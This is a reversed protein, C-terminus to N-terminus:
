VVSKRDLRAHHWYALTCRAPHARLDERLWREQASGAACGVVSCNSDLVVVHWAALDYSYWTAGGGAADGFYATYGAAAPTATDHNGVAPRTRSRHRGWTPDYCRAFETATGSEYALDGLAAVVADPYKTVLADLLAATAEDGDSACSAIDGAALLTATAPMTPVSTTAAAATSPGSPAEGGALPAEEALEDASGCGIMTFVVAATLALGVRSATV